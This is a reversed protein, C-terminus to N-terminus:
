SAKQDIEVLVSPRNHWLLFLAISFTCLEAAPISLYIGTDGLFLPLVFLFVVPFAMSRSVALLTSHLPKHMATFYASILLNAGNFLFAPWFVSFFNLVITETRGDDTELFLDILLNPILFILLVISVGVLFVSIGAIHLFTKIRESDGAGFNKSLIPQLADCVGYAIMLGVLLLYTVVTFAAVGDVGMKTIMVQNFVFILIGASIENTFESFGNYSASLVERWSGRKWVIKLNLYKVCFLICVVAGVFHSLGNALVAGEVGMELVAILLWDLIINLVASVTLVVSAFVPHGDVRIFFSLCLSTVLFIEFP